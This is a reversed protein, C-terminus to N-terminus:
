EPNEVKGMFMIAGTTNEKIIYVFPHNARFEISNDGGGGASTVGITVSTVAAAETGEEDLEIFTKHKVSSIYLDVDSNIKSFDAAGKSDFAIGMGLQTLDPILEKKYEIKFKPLFINVATEDSFDANWNDWADQNMASVLSDLSVNYNPLLIAMSFNGQGYPLDVASFLQNSTYKINEKFSMTQVNNIINGEQDYFAEEKTEEKNFQYKWTAKFYIANILFMINEPDIQEIIKDIKDHTKEAVWGNIIGVSAPDTFDLRNVKADYFTKNVNLFDEKVPFNDRYWISNGIEMIVKPDVSLLANILLQYSQNIEELSLGTLHMVEEFAKKTDGEAGNYTMALALSISLPSIMLNDEDEELLNTTKFIDFAFDNSTKLLLLSKQDLNIQKPGAPSVPDKECSAIFIAAALIVSSLIIVTKSRFPTKM